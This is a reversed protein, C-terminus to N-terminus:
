DSTTDVERGHSDEMPADRLSSAGDAATWRAATLESSAVGMNSRIADEARAGASPFCAWSAAHCESVIFTPRTLLWEFSPCAVPSCLIITGHAASSYALTSPTSFGRWLFGLLMSSRVVGISAIRHNAEHHSLDHPLTPAASVAASSLPKVSMMDAAIGLVVGPPCIGGIDAHQACGAVGGYMRFLCVHEVIRM